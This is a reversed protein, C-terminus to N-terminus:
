IEIYQWSVRQLAIVFRQRKVTGIVSMEGWALGSEELDDNGSICSRDTWSRKLRVSRRTMRRGNETMEMGRGVSPGTVPASVFLPNVVVYEDTESPQDLNIEM